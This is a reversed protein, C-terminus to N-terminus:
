VDWRACYWDLRYAGDARARKLDICATEGSEMLKSPGSLYVWTSMIDDSDGKEGHSVHMLEEISSHIDLRQRGPGTLHKRITLNAGMEQTLQLLDKVDTLDADEAEKLTWIVTMRSTIFGAPTSESGSKNTNCLEIFHEALSLAGTIGTGGVVCVVHNYREFPRHALPYPGELRLVIGVSRRQENQISIGAEPGSEVAEPILTTLRTTWEKAQKKEKRSMSPVRWLFVVAKIEEASTSHRQRAPTFPHIQWKSTAPANLYWSTLPYRDASTLAKRTTKSLSEIPLTIRYWGNGEAQLQADVNTSLGKIRLSWDLIWLVLGPLLMYFDTSAHMCTFIFFLISLGHTIYFVNYRKRRAVPLSTIIIAVFIVFSLMGSALVSMSYPGRRVSESHSVTPNDIAFAEKLASDEPALAFIPVWAYFLVTHLTVALFFLYGIWQHFTLLSGPSLQLTRSLVSTRSIPLIILGMLVDTLHGTFGVAALRMYGNSTDDAAISRARYFDLQDGIFYGLAGGLLLAIAGILLTGGVTLRIATFPIPRTSVYTNLVRKFKANTRQLVLSLLILSLITYYSAIHIRVNYPFFEEVCIASYCPLYTLGISLGCSAVLTLASVVLLITNDM